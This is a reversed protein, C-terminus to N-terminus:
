DNVTCGVAEGGEFEVDYTHEHDWPMTFWLEYDECSEDFLWLARLVAAEAMAEPTEDSPLRAPDIGMKECEEPSYHELLLDAAELVKDNLLDLLGLLTKQCERSPMEGDTQVM